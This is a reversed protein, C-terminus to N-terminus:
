LVIDVNEPRGSVIDSHFDLSNDFSFNIGGKLDFLIIERFSTHIFLELVFNSNLPSLLLIFCKKTCVIYYIGFELEFNQNPYFAM